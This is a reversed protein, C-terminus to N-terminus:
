KSKQDNKKISKCGTCPRPPCAWSDSTTSRALCLRALLIRFTHLTFVSVCSVAASPSHSILHLLYSASSVSRALELANAMDSGLRRPHQDLWSSFAMWTYVAKTSAKYPCLNSGFMSLIAVSHDVICGEFSRRLQSVCHQFDSCTQCINHSLRAFDSTPLVCSRSYM